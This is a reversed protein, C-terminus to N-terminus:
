VTSHHRSARSALAPRRTSRRYDAMRGAKSGIPSVEALATTSLRRGHTTTTSHRRGHSGSSAILVADFKKLAGEVHQNEPGQLPPRLMSVSYALRDARIRSLKQLDLSARQVRSQM